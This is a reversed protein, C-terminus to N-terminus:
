VKPIKPQRPLRPLQTGRAGLRDLLSPVINPRNLGTVRARIEDLRKDVDKMTIKPM